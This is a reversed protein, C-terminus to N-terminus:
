CLAEKKGPAKSFAIIVVIYALAVIAYLAIAWNQVHPVVKFIKFWWKALLNLFRTRVLVIAADWVFLGVIFVIWDRVRIKKAKKVKWYIFPSVGMLIIVLGTVANSFQNILSNISIYLAALIFIIPTAPYGWTKYPRPLGAKKKRLIVVAAVTLGFFIWQGFIVYTFLQEFTGSLSLIISWIGLAIISVHPTLFKPHVSAIKKFFLGDKAMAFYVRPSCLFNQNTAGMISFLIVFSIMSAAIPGIALNMADAAVRASAAIKSTPLVWLYALNAAIYLFIVAIMGIFLGLPVNRQPNKTEGASYTASEWGKYAWLSAVLAIGFPGLMGALGKPPPNIFNAPHGKGFIFVIGCIAALATFKIVTLLNQLNAGWRTGIYNVITLFLVFLVGVLKQALPSMAFFHPLYRTTFAATLTAIAGSDIVLFLTWGFLFSIMSGYAERLYIYVGGAEPMAAGLEAFSLAGFFSLLGGVVWVALMVLPAGVGAAISSPVLFIGSGIVGGIVISVIDWLGLVRPLTQGEKEM